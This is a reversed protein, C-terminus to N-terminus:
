TTAPAGVPRDAGRVGILFIFTAVCLPPLAVWMMTQQLSLHSTLALAGAAPAAISAIRGAGGSWGIGTSRMSAPYLQAALANIGAQGGTQCFGSILYVIIFATTGFPVTGLLAVTVAMGLYYLPILRSAPIRDLFYGISLTGSVGGVFTILSAIAFSQLSIGAMERFFTPLWASILAERFIDLAGAKDARRSGDGVAFVEEGTLEVTPDLRRLTRPITPDAPNRSVRFQLSEPVILLLMPVALLPLLGGLWFGSQWGFPEILWAAVVSGLGIGMSFGVLGITLFTSRRRAPTMEALLAMAIPLGGSLFIGAIGRLIALEGLNRVFLCALTLLGFIAYCAVLLRRRGLRDALPTMVFAGVALGIQQWSFVPAMAAAPQGFDDAIAPAIRGVMFIDFGDVFMVLTCTVLVAIHVASVKQRDVFAQIDFRM